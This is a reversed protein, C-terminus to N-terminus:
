DTGVFIDTGNFYIGGNVVTPASSSDDVEDLVVKAMFCDTYVGVGATGEGVITGDKVDDATTLKTFKFGTGADNIIKGGSANTSHGFIIASDVAAYNSQDALVSLQIVPDTVALNASDITTTTGKVDLNGTVLIDKLLTVDEAFTWTEDDLANKLATMSTVGTGGYSTGVTTGRWEGTGIVGLTTIADDGTYTSGAVAALTAHYAQVDVGIELSTQEKFTAENTITLGAIYALGDDQAQVDTGITLGLDTKVQTSDRGELGNATFKAYDDNAVGDQDIRALNGDAIGRTVEQPVYTALQTLASDNPQLGAEVATQNIWASSGDWALVENNAITVQITTDALESIADATDVQADVYATTALKNWGM